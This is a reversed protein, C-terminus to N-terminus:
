VYLRNKTWVPHVICLLCLKESTATKQKQNEGGQVGGLEKDLNEGM